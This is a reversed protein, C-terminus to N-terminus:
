KVSSVGVAYQQVGVDYVVLFAIIASFIWLLNFLMDLKAMANEFAKHTTTVSKRLNVIDVIGLLNNSGNSYIPPSPSVGAETPRSKKKRQTNSKLKGKKFMARTITDGGNPDFM